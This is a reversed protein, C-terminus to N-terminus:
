VKFCADCKTCLSEDVFYPLAGRESMRMEPLRQCPGRAIVVAPGAYALASRIARGVEKRQWTDVVQVKQVGVSRALAELNLKPAPKGKLTKGSSAHPQAGTM